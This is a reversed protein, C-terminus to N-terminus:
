SNRIPCPLSSGSWTTLIIKRFREPHLPLSVENNRITPYRRLPIAAPLVPHFGSPIRIWAMRAESSTGSDKSPGIRYITHIAWIAWIWYLPPLVLWISGNSLFIIVLVLLSESHPLYRRLAFPLLYWQEPDRGSFSASWQQWKTSDSGGPPIWSM